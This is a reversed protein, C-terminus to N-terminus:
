KASVMIERIRTGSYSCRPKEPEEGAVVWAHNEIGKTIVVAMNM